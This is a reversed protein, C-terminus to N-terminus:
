IEFNKQQFSSCRQQLLLAEASNPRKSIAKLSTICIVIASVIVKEIIGAEPVHMGYIIRKLRLMLDM